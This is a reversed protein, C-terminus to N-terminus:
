VKRKRSFKKQSAKSIYGEVLRLIRMLEILREREDPALAKRRAIVQLEAIQALASARVPELVHRASLEDEHLHRSRTGHLVHLVSRVALAILLTILAVLGAIPALRALIDMVDRVSLGVAAVALQKLVAEETGDPRRVGLEVAYQGSSLPDISVSWTGDDSSTLGYRITKRADEATFSVTIVSNRLATGQITFSERENVTEPFNEIILSPEPVFVSTGLTRSNGARDELVISVAIQGSRMGSPLTFAVANGTVSGESTIGSSELTASAIGSVDNINATILVDGESNRAAAISELAPAETDINVQRVSTVSRGQATEYRVSMFWTGDELGSVTREATPSLQRTPQDNKSQSIGTFVRLTGPPLTWRFTADPVSYWALQDPHTPSTISLAPLSLNDAPAAPETGARPAPAPDAPAPRREQISLSLGGRSSLIDTGLGDNARVAASSFLITAQGAKKARMVATFITGGSGNWGPNPVGGDFSITGQSNTFSPEEVWIPFLSGNRSVSVVEVTDSPFQVVGSANNIAVGGSSVRAEITFIDSVGVETAGSSLTLTAASALAPLLAILAAFAFAKLYHSSRM